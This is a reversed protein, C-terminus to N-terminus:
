KKKKYAVQRCKCIYHFGQVRLSHNISSHMLVSFFSLVWKILEKYCMIENNCSNNKEKMKSLEKEQEIVKGELQTCKESLEHALAESKSCLEQKTKM